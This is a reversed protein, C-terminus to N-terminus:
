SRSCYPNFSGRDCALQGHCKKQRHRCVSSTRAVHTKCVRVGQIPSAAKYAPQFNCNRDTVDQATQSGARATQRTPRGWSLLHQERAAAAVVPVQSILLPMLHLYRSIKNAGGIISVWLCRRSRDSGEEQSSSPSARTGSAPSRGALASERGLMM